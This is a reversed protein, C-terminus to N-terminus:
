LLLLLQQQRLLQVFFSKFLHCGKMFLCFRNRHQKTDTACYWSVNQHFNHFFYDHEILVQEFHGIGAEKEKNEDKWYLQCCVNLKYKQRHSSEFRPGRSDSTVWEVLQAVVVAWRNPRKTSVSRYYSAGEKTRKLKKAKIRQEVWEYQEASFM